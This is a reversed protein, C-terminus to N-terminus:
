IESSNVSACYIMDLLNRSLENCNVPKHFFRFNKDKFHEEIDDNVGYGSIMMIPITPNLVRLQNYCQLGDMVPMMMDLVVGDINSSFKNLADQGNSALVVNYGLLQFFDNSITRIELDDDVVLITKM